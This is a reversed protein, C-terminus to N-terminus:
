NGYLVSRGRIAPIPFLNILLLYSNSVSAAVMKSVEFGDGAAQALLSGAPRGDSRKM